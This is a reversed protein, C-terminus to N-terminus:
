PSIFYSHYHISKFYSSSCSRKLTNHAKSKSKSSCRRGESIGEYQDRSTKVSDGVVGCMLMMLAIDSDNGCLVHKMLEPQSTDKKRKNTQKSKKNTQTTKARNSNEVSKYLMDLLKV